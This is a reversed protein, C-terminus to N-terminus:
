SKPGITGDGQELLAVIQDRAYKWQRQVREEPHGLFSISAVGRIVTRCFTWKRSFEPDSYVDDGFIQEAFEHTGFAISREEELIATELEPERRSALALELTTAFLKGCYTDFLIDLAEVVRNEDHGLTALRKHLRDQESESLHHLAEILLTQRNPFHHQHAGRSVGARRAVTAASLGLYGDEVLIDVAADLLRQRTALSRAQKPEIM